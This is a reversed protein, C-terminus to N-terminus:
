EGGADFGSYAGGFGGAGLMALQAANSQPMGAASYGGGFAGAGAAAGAASLGGYYDPPQYGSSQQAGGATQQQAPGFSPMGARGFTTANQTSPDSYTYPNQGMMGTSGPGLGAAGGAGGAGGGQGPLIGYNSYSTTRPLLGAFHSGLANQANAGAMMSGYIPSGFQGLVGLRQQNVQEDINTSALQGAGFIGSNVNNVVSTNGLGRNTLSQDQSATQQALSNQLQQHATAGFNNTLGMGQNLLGQYGAQAGQYANQTQGKLQDYMASAGPILTSQTSSGLPGYIPPM